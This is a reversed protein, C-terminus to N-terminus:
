GQKSGKTYNWVAFTLLGTTLALLLNLRRDNRSKYFADSILKDTDKKAKDQEDLIKEIREWVHPPPITLQRTM